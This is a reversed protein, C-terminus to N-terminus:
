MYLLRPEQTIKSSSASLLPVLAQVVRISGRQGKKEGDDDKIDNVYNGKGGADAKAARPLYLRMPLHRLIVGQPNLLKTNISNFIDFNHQQVGRWLQESDEKSLFMVSKGTGTRLYDAQTFIRLLAYSVSRHASVQKVNNIYLDHLHKSSADLKLLQAEPYNSFHVTLKWPLCDEGEELSGHQEGSTSSSPSAPEAGSYLDYLLGLPYHWKLPVGDHELWAESSAVHPYIM